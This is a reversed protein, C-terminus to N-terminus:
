SKRIATKIEQKTYGANLLPLYFDRDIDPVFSKLLRCYKSEIAYEGLAAPILVSCSETLSATHSATKIDCSGEVCTFIYFKEPDSRETYLAGDLEYLIACFNRNAIYYTFPTGTIKLGPAATKKGSNDFDVAQLAKDTKLQRPKGDPGKRDYDYLRYTIDSNQQIEAVMVGKTIAHLLGAPIYVVDGRKVPLRGLMDEVAHGDNARIAKELAERTVGDKLGIILSGSEPAELVYWMESKGNPEGELDRALADDPHVQISLNDNADIIKVLLPFIGAAFRRGLWKIRSEGGFEGILDSFAMGAYQGNSVRSMDKERCSINWSEGTHDSPACRGYRDSLRRGGWIMEKYIPEFLLPYM